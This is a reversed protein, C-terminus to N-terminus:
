FALYYGLCFALAAVFSMLGLLDIRSLRAPQAPTKIIVGSRAWLKVLETNSIASTPTHKRYPAGPIKLFTPLEPKDM